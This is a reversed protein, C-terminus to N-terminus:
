EEDSRPRGDAKWGQAGILPVFRVKVVDQQRFQDQSERAVRVLVQSSEERGVPIVLRGGVALQSSLAEPVRPGSAAVAIADFPALEPMGLSGDGCHVTVNAYGLRALREKAALALHPLREITHVERAIRSLIAAAYGSGTGVDLVREGGRLGLSQVTIGVIYPQSITQGEGISLPGDDYASAALEPPVFSERPVALFAEVVLPDTIGREVLQVVVMQARLTALDAM